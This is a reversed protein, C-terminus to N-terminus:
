AQWQRACGEWLFPMMTYVPLSLAQLLSPSAAPLCAFWTQACPQLKCPQLSILMAHSLRAKGAGLVTHGHM